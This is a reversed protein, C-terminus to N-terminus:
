TALGIRSHLAQVRRTTEDNGVQWKSVTVAPTDISSQQRTNQPQTFMASRHTGATLVPALDCAGLTQVLLVQHDTENLVVPHDLACPEGVRLM